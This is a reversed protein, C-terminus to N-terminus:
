KLKGNKRNLALALADTLDNHKEFDFWHLNYMKCIKEFVQEKNRCGLYSKASMNHIYNVELDYLTLITLVIGHQKALSTFSGLRGKNNKLYIDEMIIKSPKYVDLIHKFAIVFDLLVYKDRNGKPAIKNLFLIEDKDNIVAIGTSFKSLDIGMVNTTPSLNEKKKKKFFNMRVKRVKEMDFNDIQPKM